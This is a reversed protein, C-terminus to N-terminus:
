TNTTATRTIAATTPQSLISHIIPYLSSSFRALRTPLQFASFTIKFVLPHLDLNPSIDCSFACHTRWDGITLAGKEQRQNSQWLHQGLSRNMSIDVCLRGKPKGEEKGGCLVKTMAVTAKNECVLM